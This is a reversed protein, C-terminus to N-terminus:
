LLLFLLLGRLLRPRQRSWLWRLLRQRSLLWCSLWWLM